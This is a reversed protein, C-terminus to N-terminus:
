CYLSSCSHCSLCVLFVLRELKHTFRHITHWKMGDDADGEWVTLPTTAALPSPSTIDLSLLPNTHPLAKLQLVENERRGTTDIWPNTLVAKSSFCSVPSHYRTAPALLRSVKSQWTLLYSPRRSHCSTAIASRCPTALDTSTSLTPSQPHAPRNCHWVLYHPTGERVM